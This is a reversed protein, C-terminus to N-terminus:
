DTFRDWQPLQVLMMEFLAEKQEDPAGLARATRIMDARNSDITEVWAVTYLHDDAGIEISESFFIRRGDDTALRGHDQYRDDDIQYSVLHVSSRVDPRGEVSVDPAHALYFLTNKPGLMFGLQTRM